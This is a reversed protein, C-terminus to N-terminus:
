KVIKGSEYEKPEAYAVGTTNHKRPQNANTPPPEEKGPERNSARVSRPDDTLINTQTESM